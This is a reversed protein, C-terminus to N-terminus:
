AYEGQRSCNKRNILLHAVFLLAVILVPILPQNYRPINHTFFSNVGYLYLAPLAIAFLDWKRRKIGVGALFFLSAFYALSIGVSSVLVMSFPVSLSYRDEVFLGKWAIPLTVFIHRFPHSLIKNRAYRRMEKDIVTTEMGTGYAAILEKRKNTAQRLYGTKYNNRLLRELAGGPHLAKEGFFRPILKKRVYNDPTWFLFSGFYERTNMMDYEARIALVAGARGTIYLKGFHIYNRVMWSGVLAFYAALLIVLGTVLEKKVFKGALGLVVLFILVFVILYMFVAKTLVLLALSVGLFAFYKKGAGRVIKYLSISASIVFLAAMHETNISWASFFLSYSFGTLFLAVYSCFFNKTILFVFYMAGFATLLLIPLQAYRLIELADGGALTTTADVSGLTSSAAILMAIYAAMTPERYADPKLNEGLRYSYTGHNILNYGTRIHYSADNGKQLPRGDFIQAANWVVLFVFLVCLIIHLLLKAHKM